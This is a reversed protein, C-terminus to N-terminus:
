LKQVDDTTRTLVMPITQSNYVTSSSIGTVIVFGSGPNATSQVEIEKSGDSMLFYSSTSTTVNGWVRVLMGLNNTGQAGPMGPTWTNLQAGGLNICTMGYPKLTVPGGTVEPEPATLVRQLGSTGLVGGVKVINGPSFTTVDPIFLAAPMDPDEIFAGDSAGYGVYRGTLVVAKGNAYGKAQAITACARAVTTGASNNGVSSWTGAGNRAKVSFYYPQDLALSLGTATASATTGNTTWGKITTGGPTTGIAYQYEALGSESDSSTWSCSLQNTVTTYKAATLTPTSPATTDCWYPGLDLQGNPVNDVNYASAHLYWNNGGPSAQCAKTGSSWSTESDTWTHSPTQDWVYRIHDITQGGFGAGNTFTFTNGATQWTSASKDCTVSIPLCLTSKTVASSQNSTNGWVDYAAVTYIYSTNPTLGTDTYTTGSDVADILQGGRYIKYGDVGSADTSATWSLQIQTTSTATASLDTPVTPPTTDASATSVFEVADAMVVSNNAVNTLTVNGGTGAAFPRASAILNWKGGNGTQDASAAVSGGQYNVTFPANTARNTGKPYWIKIDYTGASAINPTWSCSATASGTTTNAFRYDAGYKDTSSTGTTWSGTIVSFGPDSNDIIITTGAGTPPLTFFFTRTSTASENLSNASTVRYHYIHNQTLGTLAVSHSTLLTPDLTTLTGMSQTKGYEVQSTAPVNTTWTITASTATIGTVTVSSIVPPDPDVTFNVTTGYGATVVVNNVTQGTYSPKSATISYTGGAIGSMTYSGDALSTTSYGGSGTAVTAGVVAHGLSDRAYGSLVGGVPDITFDVAATAGANVTIGTRTQSTYNTKAAKFTYTGAAMGPLTYSGDSASTSACAGNGGVIRVGAIPTGGSTRVYGSMGTTTGWTFNVVSVQGAIVTCTKTQTGLGAATADCTVTYSGPALDVFGYFGTGDAYQTGSGAGSITMYAGDVWASGNLVNGHLNGKTATAGKWAMAPVDDWTPTIQSTFTSAWGSWTGTAYPEQYEYGSFGDAYHGAPSATRTERLEQLANSSSNLYLGPGIIMQRTGHRDKEFNIWKTWDAAYTGTYDFYTMPVAMDVIGEQLWSDWDQYYQTYAQANTARFAAQTSASPAPAGCVFSGSVKVNPKVVQIKHYIRRVLNTIQDRRWQQWQTDANGPTNTGPLGYHANYRAVSTPNYGLNNATFRIYDFHVGDIDYNNAVDMFVKTIYDECLPHGPDFAKNAEEAGTSTCTPWYNDLTTLSGTPTSHHLGYVTGGSTRFTVMWCHVEIRKKGGTTDHAANIIAQLADFNTPNMGTMHPESMGSVYAVDSSRRVEVFVTNCNSKRIDGQGTLQSSDGVVGLLQDVETQSMFGPSGWGDIWWARYENAAVPTLFLATLVLLFLPALCTCYPRSTRLL